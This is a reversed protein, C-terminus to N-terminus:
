ASRLFADAGDFLSHDRNRSLEAIRLPVGGDLGSVARSQLADVDNVFRDSSRQAVYQTAFAERKSFERGVLANHNVVKTASREVKRHNTVCTVFDADDRGCAVKFQASQVPGLAQLVGDGILEAFLKSGVGAVIGLAQLEQSQFCFM